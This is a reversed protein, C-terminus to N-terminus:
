LNFYHPTHHHITIGERHSPVNGFKARNAWYQGLSFEKCSKGIVHKDLQLLISLCAQTVFLHASELSTSSRSVRDKPIRSM